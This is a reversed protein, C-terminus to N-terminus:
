DHQTLKISTVSASLARGDGQSLVLNVLFGFAERSEARPVEAVVEIELNGADDIAPARPPPTPRDPDSVERVQFVYDKIKLQRPRKAKRQMEAEAAKRAIEGVRFPGVLRGDSDIRWADAVPTDWKRQHLELVHNGRPSWLISHQTHNYLRDDGFHAGRTKRLIAGDALRVIANEVVGPGEAAWQREDGWTEVSRKDAPVRSAFTWAFAHRGDPSVSGDIVRHEGVDSRCITTAGSPSKTCGAAAVGPWLATVTICLVCAARPWTATM